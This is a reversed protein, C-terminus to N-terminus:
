NLSPPCQLLYFKPLPKHNHPKYQRVHFLRAKSWTSILLPGTYSFCACAWMSFFFWRLPAMSQSKLYYLVFRISFTVNPVPGSVSHPHVLHPYSRAQHQLHPLSSCPLHTHTGTHVCANAPKYAHMILTSILHWLYFWTLNLCKKFNVTLCYFSHTM